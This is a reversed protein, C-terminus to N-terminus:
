LFVWGFWKIIQLVDVLSKHVEAFINWPSINDTNSANKILNAFIQSGFYDWICKSIWFFSDIGKVLYWTIQVDAIGRAVMQM